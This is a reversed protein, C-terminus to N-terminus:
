LVRPPIRHGRATNSRPNSSRARKECSASGNKDQGTSSWVSCPRGLDRYGPAVDKRWPAAGINEDRVSLPRRCM